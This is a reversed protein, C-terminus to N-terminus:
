VSASRRSTSSDANAKGGHPSWLLLLAVALAYFAAAAQLRTAHLAFRTLTGWLVVSVGTAMPILTSAERAKEIRDIPLHGETMKWVRSEMRRKLRYGSYASWLAAFVIMAYGANSVAQGPGCALETLSIDGAVFVIMIWMAIQAKKVIHL